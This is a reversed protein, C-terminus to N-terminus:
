GGQRCSLGARETVWWALLFIRSVSTIHHSVGLSPLPPAAPPTSLVCAACSVYTCSKLICRDVAAPAPAPSLSQRAVAVVAARRTGCCLVCAFVGSRPAGVCCARCGGGGAVSAEKRWLWRPRRGHIRVKTRFRRLMRGGGGGARGEGEGEGSASGRTAPSRSGKKKKGWEDPSGYPRPPGSPTPPSREGRRRGKPSSSSPPPPTPGAVAACGHLGRPAQGFLGGLRAGAPTGLPGADHENDVLDTTEETDVQTLTTRRLGVSRRQRPATRCSRFLPRRLVATYLVCFVSM